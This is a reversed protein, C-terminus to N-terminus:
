RVFYSILDCSDLEFDFASIAQWIKTIENTTLLLPLIEVSFFLFKITEYGKCVVFYLLCALIFLIFVPFCHLSGPPELLTERLCLKPHIKLLRYVLSFSRCFFTNVKIKLGKVNHNTRVVGFRAARTRVGVPSM